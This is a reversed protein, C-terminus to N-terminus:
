IVHSGPIQGARDMGDQWLAAGKFGSLPDPPSSRTGGPAEGWAGSPGGAACPTPGGTPMPHLVLQCVKPTNQSPFARKFSPSKHLLELAVSSHVCLLSERKLNFLTLETDRRRAVAVAYYANVEHGLNM